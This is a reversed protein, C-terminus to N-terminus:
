NGIKAWWGGLRKLMSDRDQNSYLIRRRDIGPKTVRHPAWRATQPVFVRLAATNEKALSRFNLDGDRTEQEVAVGGGPAPDAHSPEYHAPPSKRETIKWFRM